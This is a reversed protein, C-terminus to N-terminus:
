SNIADKIVKIHSPRTRCCGAVITAGQEIWKKVEELYELENVESSNMYHIEEANTVISDTDSFKNIRENNAFGGVPIELQLKQLEKLGETILNIGCCNLLVADPSLDLCYKTADLLNEGSPLKNLRNGMLTWGLWVPLNTRKAMELAIRGEEATTMTECIIFDVKGTLTEAFEAYYNQLIKKSPVLDPRYSTELPPFSAAIKTNSGKSLIAEKALDIAKGTLDKFENELNKRALLPKTVAYNNITIYDSGADIYDKHVEIIEQSNNKLALASWISETHSPVEVGRARLETGMAGDGLIINKM